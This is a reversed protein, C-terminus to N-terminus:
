LTGNAGSKVQSEPIKYYAAIKAVPPPTITLANLSKREKPNLRICEKFFTKDNVTFNKSPPLVVNKMADFEPFEGTL